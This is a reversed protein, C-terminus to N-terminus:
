LYIDLTTTYGGLPFTKSYGSWRTFTNANGNQDEAHFVGTKSIVGHTTTPVRVAGTWDFTDIEFSQFYAALSIGSVVLISVAIMLSRFRPQISSVRSLHRRLRSRVTLM